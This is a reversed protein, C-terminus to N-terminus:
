AAIDEDYYEQMKQKVLNLDNPITKDEFMGMPSKAIHRADGQTIFYYNGDSIETQLLMSVTTEMGYKESFLKGITKVKMKGTDDLESHCLVFCDLDSRLSKLANMISWAHNGIESFKDFGREMCRRMFENTMVFQFDDIIITKIDLRKTSIFNVAKIIKSYDDTSCYNGTLWDESVQKYKSRYGRFPLPKDIINIIFTEAPNLNRISTSKGTGSEGIILSTNSM